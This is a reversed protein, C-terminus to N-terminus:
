TWVHDTLKSTAGEGEFGSATVSAILQSHCVVAVKEDEGLPNQVLFDRCMQKM